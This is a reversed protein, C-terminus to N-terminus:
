EWAYLVTRQSDSSGQSCTYLTYLLSPPNEVQKFQVSSSVYRKFFWDGYEELSSFNSQLCPEYDFSLSVFGPELEKKWSPTQLYIKPHSAAYGENLYANIQGFMANGDDGIHHGAIISNLSELGKEVCDADLYIAGFINYNGYIDHTLYYMPKDAQAQVIPSNIPTNPINIWGIIDPNIDQWYEWDVSPPSADETTEQRAFFSKLTSANPSAPTHHASFRMAAYSLLVIALTILLIITLFFAGKQKWNVRAM